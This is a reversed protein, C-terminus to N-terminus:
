QGNGRTNILLTLREEVHEILVAALLQENIENM